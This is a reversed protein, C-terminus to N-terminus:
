WRVRGAMGVNPNFQVTDGTANKYLYYGGVIAAVVGIAISAQVSRREYWRKEVVPKLPEEEEKKVVKPPPTLGLLLDSLKDKPKMERLASFGPALDHRKGANWTQYIVKGNAASLLLADEVQLLAALEKMAVIRAAPDPAKRLAVRARQVDLARTIPMDPIELKTKKGGEVVVSRAATVRDAGTLWVVHPGTEVEVEAPATNQERGDIWLRGHGAIVLTGKGSWKTKAAEFAQVVDPLYRAADPVFGPDLRHALAFASPANAAKLGLTAQGRLFALQSYLTLVKGTPVVGQLKSEGTSASRQAFDLAFRNLEAEANQKDNEADHYLKDDEDVYRNLEVTMSAEAIPQLEPHSLLIPNLDQAVQQSLPDGSLEIVAVPRREAQAISVGFALTFVAVVRASLGSPM